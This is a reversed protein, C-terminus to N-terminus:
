AVTREPLWGGSATGVVARQLTFQRTKGPSSGCLTSLGSSCAALSGLTLVLLTFCASATPFTTGATGTGGEGSSGSSVAAMSFVRLLVQGPTGRTGVMDVPAVSPFYVRMAPM